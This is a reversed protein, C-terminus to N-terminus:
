RSVDAGPNALESDGLIFDRLILREEGAITVLAALLDPRIVIGCGCTRPWALFYDSVDYEARWTVLALAIGSDDEFTFPEGPRLGLCAILATTPVLLSDPVGLGMRSDGVMRLEFDIGVLPHCGYALGDIAPNIHARWIYLDGEAVPPLNLARRDNVDRVELMLFRKTFRDHEDRWDRPTVSRKEFMGLWHWGRYPGSDVTPLGTVPAMTLTALLHGDIEFAAEVNRKSGGSARELIQMWLEDGTSPLPIMPPRPQRLAELMLPVTPDDLLTAALEEEWQVPDILPEGAMLAVARGGAAVVQLVEEIAEEHALYANPWRKNVRSGFKDLQQDLRTRLTASKLVTAARASVADRLHTLMREARRIRRGAVSNLLSNLGPQDGNKDRESSEPTWLVCGLEGLLANDPLDLSALPPSDGTIMRRALARLTLHSRTSLDRLVPQCADIVTSSFDSLELVRLLWTLTATDSIASLVVSFVSACVVPREEILMQVALLARRKKERGPHALGAMAALAFACELDGPSPERADLNLPDYPVDPDDSDDVRPARSSIVEFAEDWASFAVAISSKDTTSLAEVTLAHILAQSIGYTGFRSTAVIHEIEEAVLANTLDADLSTARHLSDIETVGGFTLWGGHGRTRTWTLAYALAALQKEGHRELGQAISRLIGTRESFVSADAVARLASRVEEFRGVSLLGIMRYGIINVFRETNWEVSNTNYPRTRWARIARALGPMGPPFGIIVSGSDSKMARSTSRTRSVGLSDDNSSSEDRIAFVCPVDAAEAIENLRAVREDDLAILEASNTFGYSVPREDARALLWILLRRAGPMRASSFLELHTQDAPDLPTDLTLRLAGAVISDVHDYWERWVDALAENLLLNPDNCEHLLKPVAMHVAAVPDAKALLKWWQSWAHRTEKLDTHLPVRECLSQARAIRIRALAPAAEILVPLPDLVEYITTDKHWGYATLFVCAEHWLVEVRTLDGSKLALRAALLRYEALDSYYRRGSGEAIEDAILDLAAERRNPNAGNVALRLILDPPVPGGLEGFLSTTISNSVKKLIRLGECWQQDDLMGMAHTLTEAIVAHLSYLDCSRPDGAFPRLDDVLLSLAELALGGRNALTEAEARSLAVVFRLWCRYWGEGVILAEASSLGILDINAALACEDLWAEIDGNKWKVSREQLRRTLEFLQERRTDIDKTALEVPDVGYALVRRLSGNPIGLDVAMVAWQRPSSMDPDLDPHTVLEDAIAIYASAPHELSDVLYMAGEWGHTDIVDRVVNEISLGRTEVWQALRSWNIPAFPTWGLNCDGSEDNSEARITTKKSADSDVFTTCSALRLRGRLWALAVARDSAEGYSTNDRKSESLYGGMYLQWPVTAGLKDLAACMQLGDRAPIVLHEEDLLRTAVQDAGILASLVDAFEVLMSDFREM